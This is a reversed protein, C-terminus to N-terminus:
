SETLAYIKAKIAGIYVNLFEIDSQLVWFAQVCGVYTNSLELSDYKTVFIDEEDECIYIFIIQIFYILMFFFMAPHEGRGRKQVLTGEIGYM